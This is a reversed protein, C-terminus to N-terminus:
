VLREKAIPFVWFIFICVSVDYSARTHWVFRELFANVQMVMLEMWCKLKTKNNNSYHMQLQYVCKLSVSENNKRTELEFNCCVCLFLAFITQIQSLTSISVYMLAYGYKKLQVARPQRHLYLSITTFCRFIYFFM